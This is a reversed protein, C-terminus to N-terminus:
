ASIDKPPVVGPVVINSQAQKRIQNLFAREVVNMIDRFVLFNTLNGKMEVRGDAYQRIIYETEIADAERRVEKARKESM